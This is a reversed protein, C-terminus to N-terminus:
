KNINKMMDRLTIAPTAKIEDARSTKRSESKVRKKIVINSSAAAKLKEFRNIRNETDVLVQEKGTYFPHCNACIEISLADRTGGVVHKTGCSNCVVYASDNYKPHISIKM